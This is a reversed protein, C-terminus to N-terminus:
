TAEENKVRSALAGARSNTRVSRAFLIQLELTYSLATKELFPNPAGRLSCRWSSRGARLLRGIVRRHRALSRVVVM